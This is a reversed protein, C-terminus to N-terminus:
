NKKAGTNALERCCVDNKRMNSFDCCFAYSKHTNVFLHSDRICKFSLFAQYFAYRIDRCFLPHYLQSKKDKRRLGKASERLKQWGAMSNSFSVLHSVFCGSGFFAM